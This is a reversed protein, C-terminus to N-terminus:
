DRYLTLLQDEEIFNPKSSSDKQFRPAKVGKKLVKKVLFIRAEDWLNADIFHQLTISGGEIIVSQLNKQYLASMIEHTSIQKGRRGMECTETNLLFTQKNNLHYASQMKKLKNNPDIVIPLPHNGVWLRTNLKPNDSLATNVGIMVSQEQSRWQHVRQKSLPSTLWYSGESDKPAIFGDASEAWKLIIYPRKNKHFSFFRKNLNKSEKELVGTKVVCGADKLKKVGKGLVKLNQDLCGIVVRPIKMAVILDSCPPTKGQHDCPELNVYLTSQALISPDDVKLIAEREAHSQGAKKHWGEAIIKGKYVIVCGVMPNPYTYGLGKKALSICRKMFFADNM